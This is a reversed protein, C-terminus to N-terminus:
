PRRATSRRCEGDRSICGTDFRPCDPNGDVAPVDPYLAMVRKLFGHPYAGYYRSANRYDQGIQWVGYLWRGGGAVWLADACQPFARLYADRRGQLTLPQASM